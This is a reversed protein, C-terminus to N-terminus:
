WVGLLRLLVVILVLLTFGVGWYVIAGFPGFRM